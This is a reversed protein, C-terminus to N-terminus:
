HHKRVIYETLTHVRVTYAAGLPIEFTQQPAATIWDASGPMLIETEGSLFEISEAGPPNFEYLGPLMTGLSIRKGDPFLLTRSIIKGEHFINAKKLVTVNEFANDM